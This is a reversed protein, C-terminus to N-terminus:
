PRYDRERQHWDRSAEKLMDTLSGDNAELSALIKRVNTPQIQISSWSLEPEAKALLRVLRLGLAKKGEAYQALAFDLLCINYHVLYSGSVPAYYKALEPHYIVQLTFGAENTIVSTTTPVVAYVTLRRDQVDRALNVCATAFDASADRDMQSVLAKEVPTFKEVPIFDPANTNQALAAAACFFLFIFIRTHM